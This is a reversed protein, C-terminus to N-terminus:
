FVLTVDGPREMVPVPLQVQHEIIGRSRVIPMDAVTVQYKRDSPNPKDMFQSDQIKLVRQLAVWRLTTTLSSPPM